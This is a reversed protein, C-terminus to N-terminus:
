QIESVAVANSRVKMVGISEGISAKRLAVIAYLGAGDIIWANAHNENKTM